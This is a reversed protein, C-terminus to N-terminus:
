STRELKHYFVSVEYGDKPFNGHYDFGSKAYFQRLKPNGAWCNLVMTGGENQMFSRIGDLFKLGLSRGQEVPEIMLSQLYWLPGPLSKIGWNVFQITQTNPYVGHLPEVFVSGILSGNKELVYVFGGEVGLQVISLPVPGIHQLSGSETLSNQVRSSLDVIWPADDTTARRVSIGQDMRPEGACESNEESLTMDSAIEDLL